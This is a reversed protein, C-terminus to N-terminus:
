REPLVDMHTTGTSSEINKDAVNRLSLTLYGFEAAYVLKEADKPSVALTVTKYSETVKQSELDLDQGMALVKSNQIITYVTKPYLDKVMGNKDIIEEMDFAALVDVYDGPRILNSVSVKETVEISVARQKEPVRFSLLMSDEDALREKVIQEGEIVRDMLYKGIIESKNMVANPNVYDRTVKQVKIDQESIRHRSPLTKAAVYVDIYEEVVPEATARKIYSYVLASAALAMVLSIILAKRNISEMEAEKM